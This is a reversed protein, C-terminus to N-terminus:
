KKSPPCPTIQVSSPQALPNVTRGMQGSQFRGSFLLLNAKLAYANSLFKKWERLM